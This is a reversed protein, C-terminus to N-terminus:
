EFTSIKTTTTVSQKENKYISSNPISFLSPNSRKTKKPKNVKKIKTKPPLIKPELLFTEFFKM